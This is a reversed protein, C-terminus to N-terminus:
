HLVFEARRNKAWADEDDGPNAPREEGFSITSLQSEQVGLVILYRKVSNARREGLALNYEETGREDCHGEIIVESGSNNILWAANQALAAKSEQNLSFDDFAFYVTRLAVGEQERLEAVKRRAEELEEETIAEEDLRRIAEERMEENEDFEALEDDKIRSRSCASFSLLSFVFIMISLLGLTRRVM